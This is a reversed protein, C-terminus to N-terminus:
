DLSYIYLMVSATGIGLPIMSLVVYAATSIREGLDKRRCVLIWVAAAFLLTGTIIHLMDQGRITDMHPEIYVMLVTFLGLGGYWLFFGETLVRLKLAIGKM